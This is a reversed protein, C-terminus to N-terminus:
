VFPMFLTSFYVSRRAVPVGIDTREFFSIDTFFWFTLLIELANLNIIGSLTNKNYLMFIYFM